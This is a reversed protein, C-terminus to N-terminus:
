PRWEQSWDMHVIDDPDAKLYRPRPALRRLRAPPDVPVIRLRRGRRVVDVPTGKELVEDLIRYVNERLKSATIAM